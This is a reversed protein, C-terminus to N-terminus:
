CTPASCTRGSASRAACAPRGHALVAVLPSLSIAMILGVVAITLQQAVLAWYNRLTFGLTIAVAFAVLPCWETVSLAVFRLGRNIHARFQTTMGNILFVPSLVATITALPPEGYLLAILPSAALVILSAAAGILTNLWFLNSQQAHSLERSQVAAASLGFDRLLEAIGILSLVMALYGYDVSDLLRALLAISAFQTGIRLAQGVITVISGRAASRALSPPPGPSPSSPAHSAAPRTM